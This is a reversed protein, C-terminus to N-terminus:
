MEETNICNVERKAPGIEADNEEVDMWNAATKKDKEEVVDKEGDNETEEVGEVIEVIDEKNVEM